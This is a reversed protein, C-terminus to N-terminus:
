EMVNFIVVCNSKLNKSESVNKTTIDALLDICMRNMHLFNM